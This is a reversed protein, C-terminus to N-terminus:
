HDNATDEGSHFGGEKESAAGTDGEMEHFADLMERFHELM